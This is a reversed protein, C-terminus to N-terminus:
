SKSLHGHRRLIFWQQFLGLWGNTAWYLVLGAPFFAFMVGFIVPMFQMMKKQTPDMGTMPTLRQTLFMAVLNLVPLVFFPDPQSLDQVWLIWPAQRLEVSELLVWYLSLFIPMQILMPLCGGVPNIKEKKYLKMMEAQYQQRDDGFREKLAELRPQVARMRAFSKYQAESLKFMALKILLVLLVIAWGWNGTFSHLKSLVWFMPKALVTFVGYNMSLSLGPAIDDLQNQLKPGVLLSYSRAASQGAAVTWPDQSVARILHRGNLTETSIKSNEQKPLVWSSLFYHEIMALWSEKAVVDPSEDAFEDFSIKSFKDEPTYWAGGVFSYNEPNILGGSKGAAPEARILQQYGFGQWAQGSQNILKDEVGLLYGNPQLRLTRELRIGQGNDWVWVQADGSQSSLTFTDKHTPATTQDASLYGAQAMYLSAARGDFLRVPEHKDGKLHKDYTLLDARMLTTGQAQVGLSLVDNALTADENAEATAANPSAPTAMNPLDTATNQPVSPVDNGTGTAPVSPTGQQQVATPASQTPQQNPYDAQWRTWLVYAVMMLAIILITRMQNM